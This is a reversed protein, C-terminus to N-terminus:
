PKPEAALTGVLWFWTRKQSVTRVHSGTLVMAAQAETPIVEACVMQPLQGVPVVM